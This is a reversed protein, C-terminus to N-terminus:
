HCGCTGKRAVEARMLRIFWLFAVKDFRFCGLYGCKAERDRLAGADSRGARLSHHNRLSHRREFGKDTAPNSFKMGRFAAQLLFAKGAAMSAASESCLSARTTNVISQCQLNRGHGQMSGPLPVELDAESRDGYLSEGRGAPCVARFDGKILKVFRTVAANLVLLGTGDM